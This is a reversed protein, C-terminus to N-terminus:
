EALRYGGEIADIMEIGSLDNIKSRLRYIHTELTHTNLEAEIGWVNKLLNEKSVGAKGARALTELLRTEKDTLASMEGDARTLTKYRPSFVLGVLVINKEDPKALKEQLESLLAALRIPLSLQILPTNSPSLNKETTLILAAKEERLEPSCECEVGLEHTIHQALACSFDKDKSIILIM